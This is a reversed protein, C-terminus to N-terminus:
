HSLGYGNQLYWRKNGLNKGMIIKWDKGHKKRM